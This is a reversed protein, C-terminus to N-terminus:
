MEGEIDEQSAVNAFEVDRFRVELTGIRLGGTYYTADTVWEGLPVMVKEIHSNAIEGTNVIRCLFIVKSKQLEEQGDEPIIIFINGVEKKGFM